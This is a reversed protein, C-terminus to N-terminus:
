NKKESVPFGRVLLFDVSWCTEGDRPQWNSTAESQQQQQNSNSREEAGTEKSERPLRMIDYVERQEDRKGVLVHQLLVVDSGGFWIM